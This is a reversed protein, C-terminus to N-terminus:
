HTHEHGEHSHTTHEEKAPLKNSDTNKKSKNLDIKSFDIDFFKAFYLDLAVYSSLNKDSSTLNYKSLLPASFLKPNMSSTELLANFTTKLANDKINNAICTIASSKYNLNSNPNNSDWLDNENKLAEFVSVSHENIFDEYKLKDSNFSRMFQSYAQAITIEPKTKRYYRLIDYEFSYLAEKYLKTNLNDCTLAIPKNSHTYNSFSNNEKSEKKCSALGITLTIVLLKFFQTKM